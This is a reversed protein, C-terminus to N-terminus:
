PAGVAPGFNVTVGPGNAYLANVQQDNLSYGFVMMDDLEGAFPFSGSHDNGIAFNRSGATLNGVASAFTGTRTVLEKKGNVYIISGYESDTDWVIVFHNWGSALFTSTSEMQYETCTANANCTEFTIKDTSGSIYALYGQSGNAISSRRGILGDDTTFTERNFWGALSFDSSSFGLVTSMTVTDNTGDFDLSFNKKGTGGDDWMESASGSDCAGVSTHTGSAGPTITGNYGFGSDFATSGQCEDLKWWSLPKGHNYEWNVQSNDLAYNYIKVQDIQGTFDRDTYSTGGNGIAIDANNRADGTGDTDSDILVGDYFLQTKGISANRVGVIHHWAGNNTSVGTSATSSAANVASVDTLDFSIAQANTIMINYPRAGSGSDWKCLLCKNSAFTTSTKFWLSVSYSTGSNGLDTSTTETARIVDDTGSFSVASGFKGATWTPGSSNATAGEYLTGTNSNGSTDKVTFGAGEELNWEAVPGVGGTGQNDQTGLIGGLSIGANANMDLAIEAATLESNYIKFEDIRGDFTSAGSSDNGILLNATDTSTPGVGNVSDKRFIGNVYIKIEDDSDDTWTMVVHTWTSAPIASSLTVSADTGLDLSCVLNFPTSGTLQCNTNTNKSFILGGSGEGVTDPNIWVSYTLGTDLNDNQDIATTNTITNVDDTGDFDQCGNIKCTSTGSVKWTPDTATVTADAGVVATITNPVSNNLTQGQQEDLKWYAVQSGVPSGGAPHGGNMDEIIQKTSRAYNYIKFDDLAGGLPQTGGDKAGITARDSAVTGTYTTTTIDQDFLVGNAYYSVTAAITDWTVAFHIWETSNTTYSTNVTTGAARYFFDVQNNTASKQIQVRNSTDAGVEFTTTVVGDTWSAAPMKMWVEATGANGNFSNAFATSYYSGTQQTFKIANGYKGAVWSNSPMSTLSVTYGNGSSDATSTTGIGEDMKWYGIPGPAWNYLASIEAGTLVRNYFRVEDLTGDYYNTDQRGVYFQNANIGTDSTVTIFQWTDAVITTSQVGNIYITPSTIGTTSLVGSTSTIYAGSTLSLYYNTTSDPNAWFSISKVGSIATATSLHQSSAPVHESGNGFKAGVYTTTGNNTLTLGNGSSDAADSSTEDLKWHAMLGQNLFDNSSAGMVTSASKAGGRSIFGTKIQDTTRAYNYYKVEDIFGDWGNTGNDFDNGVTFSANLGDLTTGTIGVDQAVKVGDIYLSINTTSTKVGSIYHWKSDAYSTTSCASDSPFSGATADIGFCIFGSSDMYLKWGVGAVADVRAILTDAGATSSHKAWTSISFSGTGPLFETDSSYTKAARDANGDFGLCKGSLCQDETKWAANTVTLNNAQGTGDNGSTGQGEDLSWYSIPGVSQEESGGTVTPSVTAEAFNAGETGNQAAPNGYYHYIVTPDVISPILVYYDTSADNCGVGAGGAANMYYRLLKGNVDTFRSDGCDAQMKGATILTATDVPIVVKSNTATVTSLSIRTRYAWTDDFWAASVPKSTLRYILGIALSLIILSILVSLFKKRRM